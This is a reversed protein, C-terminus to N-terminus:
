YSAKELTWKCVYAQVAPASQFCDGVVAAVDSNQLFNDSIKARNM